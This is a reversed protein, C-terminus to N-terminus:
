RVALSWYRISFPTAGMAWGSNIIYLQRSKVVTEQIGFYAGNVTNTGSVTELSFGYGLEQSATAQIGDSMFTALPISFFPSSTNLNSLTFSATACLYAIDSATGSQQYQSLFQQSVQTGVYDYLNKQMDALDVQLAIPFGNLTMTGFAAPNQSPLLNPLDLLPGTATDGGGNLAGGLPSNGSGMPIWVSNTTDRRWMLGLTPQVWSQLPIVGTTPQVDGYWENGYLTTQAM